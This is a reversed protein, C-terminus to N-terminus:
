PLFPHTEEDKKRFKLQPPAPGIPENPITHMSKLTHSSAIFYCVSLAKKVMKSM